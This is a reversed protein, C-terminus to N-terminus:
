IIKTIADDILSRVDSLGSSGEPIYINHRREGKRLHIKIYQANVRDDWGTTVKIFVKHKKSIDSLEELTM